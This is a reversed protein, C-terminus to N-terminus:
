IALAEAVAERHYDSDGWALEAAKQRRFYLQIDYEESVGNGGHIHVCRYACNQAVEAANEYGLQRYRLVKEKDFEVQVKVDRAIAKADERDGSNYAPQGCCTQNEPVEVRAGANELLKIAAFGVSPRFLDVLCTVFLGVRPANPAATQHEPM